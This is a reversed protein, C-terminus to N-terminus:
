PYNTGWPVAFHPCSIAQLGADSIKPKQLSHLGNHFYTLQSSQESIWKNKPRLLHCFIM